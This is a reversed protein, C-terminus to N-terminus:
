AEGPDAARWVNFLLLACAAIALWAAFDTTRGLVTDLELLGWRDLIENWNHLRDGNGVLPLEQARADAMYVGMSHIATAEWLLSFCFGLANGQRLFHGCFVAPFLLQFLTGGYVMLRENVIGFIPHGAEHIALTANDIPFVWNKTWMAYACWALLAAMGVVGANAPLPNWFRSSLPALLRPM